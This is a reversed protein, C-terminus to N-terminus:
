PPCVADARQDPWAARMHGGCVCLRRAGCLAACASSCQRLGTVGVCWVRACGWVEYESAPAHLMDLTLQRLEQEAAATHDLGQPLQSHPNAFLLACQEGHADQLQQLAPLTAAAHDFYVLGAAQPFQQRSAHQGATHLRSGDSSDTGDSGRCGLSAFRAGFLRRQQQM